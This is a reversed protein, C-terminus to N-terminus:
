SSGSVHFVLCMKGAVDHGTTSFASSVIVAHDTGAPATRTLEALQHSVDLGFKPLATKFSTGSARAAATVMQNLAINATEALASEALNDLERTAGAPRGLLLDVLALSAAEDLGVIGFGPAGGHFSMTTIATIGSLETALVTSLAPQPLLSVHAPPTALESATLKTLSSAGARTAEFAMSRLTTIAGGAASLFDSQRSRSRLLAM